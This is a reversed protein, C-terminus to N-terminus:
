RAERDKTVREERKRKATSEAPFNGRGKEGRDERPGSERKKESKVGVNHLSNSLSVRDPGTVNGELPRSRRNSQPPHHHHHHLPVKREGKRGRDGEQAGAGTWGDMM